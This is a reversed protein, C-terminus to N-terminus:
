LMWAKETISDTMQTALSSTFDAFIDGVKKGHLQNYGTDVLATAVPVLGAIFESMPYSMQSFEDYVQDPPYITNKANGFATWEQRTQNLIANPIGLIRGVEIALLVRLHRNPHEDPRQGSEDTFIINTYYGTFLNALSFIEAERIIAMGISDAFCEEAWMQWWAKHQIDLSGIQTKIQEVLQAGSFTGSLDHGFEHPLATYGGFRHGKDLPMAIITPVPLDKLWTVAGGGHLRILPPHAYDPKLSTIDNQELFQLFHAYMDGALAQSMRLPVKYPHALQQVLAQFISVPAHGM